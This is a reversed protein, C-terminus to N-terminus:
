WAFLPRGEPQRLEIVAGSRAVEQGMAAVFRAAAGAKTSLAVAPFWEGHATPVVLVAAVPRSLDVLDLLESPANAQTMLMTRLDAGSFPAGATRSLSDLKTLSGEFSPILLEVVLTERSKEWATPKGPTGPRCAVIAIGAALILSIRPLLPLSRPPMPATNRFSLRRGGRTAM